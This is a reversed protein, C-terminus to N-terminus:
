TFLKAEVRKIYKNTYHLDPEHKVPRVISIEKFLSM